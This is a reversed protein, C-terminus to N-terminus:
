PNCHPCCLSDLAWLRRHLMCNVNSSGVGPCICLQLLYKQCPITKLADPTVEAMFSAGYRHQAEKVALYDALPGSGLRKNPTIVHIGLSLWRVVACDMLLKPDAHLEALHLLCHIDASGPM